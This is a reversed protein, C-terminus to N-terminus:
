PGLNLGWQLYSKKRFKYQEVRDIYAKIALKALKTYNLSFEFLRRLSLAEKLVKQKHERLPHLYNVIEDSHFCSVYLFHARFCQHPRLSVILENLM